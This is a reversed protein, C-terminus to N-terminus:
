RDWYIDTIDSVDPKKALDSYEASRRISNTLSIFEFLSCLPAKHISHKNNPM